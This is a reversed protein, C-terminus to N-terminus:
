AGIGEVLKHDAVMRLPAAVDIVTGVLENRHTTDKENWGPVFTHTSKVPAVAAMGAPAVKVAVVELRFGEELVTLPPVVILIIVSLM